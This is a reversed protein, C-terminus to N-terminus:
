QCAHLHGRKDLLLGLVTTNELPALFETLAASVYGKKAARISYRGAASDPFAFRGQSDSIVSRTPRNAGASILEVTAGSISKRTDADTVRGLLRATGPAATGYELTNLFGCQEPQKGVRLTAVVPESTGGASHLDRQTQRQFGAAWVELDYTGAAVSNFEVRGSADSEAEIVRNLSLLRAYPHPISAGEVDHAVVSVTQGQVAVAAFLVFCIM